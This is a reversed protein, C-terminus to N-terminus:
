RIKRAKRKAQRGSQSRAPTALDRSEEPDAISWTRPGPLEAPWPNPQAFVPNDVMEAVTAAAIAPDVIM